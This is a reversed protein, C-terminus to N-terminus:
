AASIRARLYAQVANRASSQALAAESRERARAIGQVSAATVAIASALLLTALLVEILTFGCQRSM